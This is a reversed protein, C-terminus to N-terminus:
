SSTRNVNKTKKTKKKSHLQANQRLLFDHDHCCNQHSTRIFSKKKPTVPIKEKEIVLVEHKM